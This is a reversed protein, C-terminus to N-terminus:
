ARDRRPQRRRPRISEFAAVAVIGFLGRRAEELVASTTPPNEKRGIVILISPPLRGVTNGTMDARRVAVPMPATVLGRPFTGRWPGFSHPIRRRSETRVKRVYLDTVGTTM